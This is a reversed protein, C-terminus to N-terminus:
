EQPGLTEILKNPGLQNRLPMYVDLLRTRENAFYRNLIEDAKQRAAPYRTGWGAFDSGLSEISLVISALYTQYEHTKDPWGKTAKGLMTPLRPYAGFFVMTDQDWLIGPMSEWGHEEHKAKVGIIWNEILKTPIWDFEKWVLDDDTQTVKATNLAHRKGIRRRVYISPIRSLFFAAVIGLMWSLYFDLKLQNYFVWWFGVTAALTFLLIWSRATDLQRATAREIKRVQKATARDIESL